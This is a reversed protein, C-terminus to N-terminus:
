YPQTYWNDETQYAPRLSMLGARDNTDTYFFCLATWNQWNFHISRAYFAMSDALAVFDFADFTHPTGQVDPFTFGPYDPHWDFDGPSAGNEIAAQAKDAFVTIAAVSANRYAYRTDLGGGSTRESPPHYFGKDDTYFGHLVQLENVQLDNLDSITMDTTVYERTVIPGATVVLNNSTIIQDYDPPSPEVIPYVGIAARQSDDWLTFVSAPYLNGTLGVFPANPALEIAAVGDYLAYATM